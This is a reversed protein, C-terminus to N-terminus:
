SIPLDDFTNIDHIDELNVVDNYPKHSIQNHILFDLVLLHLNYYAELEYLKNNNGIHQITKKDFNKVTCQTISIHNIVDPKFNDWFMRQKDPQTISCEFLMENLTKIKFTTIQKGSTTIVERPANHKTSNIIRANTFIMHMM